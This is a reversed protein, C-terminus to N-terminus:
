EVIVWVPKLFVEETIKLDQLAWGQERLRNITESLKSEPVDYLWDGSHLNLVDFVRERGDSKACKCCNDQSM